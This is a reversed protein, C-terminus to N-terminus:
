QANTPRWGEFLKKFQKGITKASHRELVEYGAQVKKFYENHDTFRLIDVTNEPSTTAYSNEMTMEGGNRYWDAHIIVPTGAHMSEMFTYQTGGGAGEGTIRSVDISYQATACIKAGGYLDDKPFEYSSMKYEPYHLKLFKRGYVRGDFGRITIERQDGLAKFVRNTDFLFETRKDNDIRAVSVCLLERSKLWAEVSKKSGDTLRPFDVGTHDYPHLICKAGDRWIGNKRNTLIRHDGGAELASYVHERGYLTKIIEDEDHIMVYSGCSHLGIMESIYNKDFAAVISPGRRALRYCDDLSRNIYLEGYHFKRYNPESRKGVKVIFPSLGAARLARMLHATYVRWGGYLCDTLFFVPIKEGSM